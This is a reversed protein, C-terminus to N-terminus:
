FSLRTDTSGRSLKDGHQIRVIQHVDFQGLAIADQM